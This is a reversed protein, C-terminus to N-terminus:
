AKADLQLSPLSATHMRGRGDQDVEAAGVVPPQSLVAALM